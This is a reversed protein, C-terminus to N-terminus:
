LRRDGNGTRAETGVGVGGDLVHVVGGATLIDTTVIGIGDVRIDGDGDGVSLRLETGAETPLRTFPVLDRESYEGQVVHGALLSRLRDPDTFLQKVASAPLREFAWDSPAFVTLGGRSFEGTMGAGAVAAIFTRFRDTAALTQLLGALDDAARTSRNSMAM